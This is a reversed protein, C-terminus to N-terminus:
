RGGSNKAPQTPAPTQSPPREDDKRWFQVNVSQGPLVVGDLTYYRGGAAPQFGGVRPDFWEKLEHRINDPHEIRLKINKTLQSLVVSYAGPIHSIESREFIIRVGANETLEFKDDTKKWAGLTIPDLTLLGDKVRQNLEDGQCTKGGVVTVSDFRTLTGDANRLHINELEQKVTFPFPESKLGYLTYELHGSCASLTRGSKLPPISPSQTLGAFREDAPFALCFRTFSIPPHGTIM